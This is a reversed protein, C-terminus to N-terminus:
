GRYVYPLDANALIGDAAILSGGALQVGRAHNANVDIRQVEADFVFEVGDQRALAMLSEVVSYM